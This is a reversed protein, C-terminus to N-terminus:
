AVSTDGIREDFLKREEPTLIAYLCIEGPFRIIQMWSYAFEVSCSSSLLGVVTQM